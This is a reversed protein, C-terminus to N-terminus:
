DHSIARIRSCATAPRKRPNEASPEVEPRWALQCCPLQHFDLLLYYKVLRRRRSGHAPVRSPTPSTDTYTRMATIISCRFSRRKLTDFSEFRNFIVDVAGRHCPATSSQPTQPILPHACARHRSKPPSQRVKCTTNVLDSFSLLYESDSSSYPLATPHLWLVTSHPSCLPAPRPPTSRPFPQLWLCDAVGFCTGYVSVPFRTVPPPASVAPQTDHDATM